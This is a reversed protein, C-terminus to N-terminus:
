TGERMAKLALSHLAASPSCLLTTRTELNCALGSLSQGDADTAKGGAEGLILVSASMDFVRM